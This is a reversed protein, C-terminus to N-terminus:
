DCFALGHVSSIKETTPQPLVCFALFFHLIHTPPGFLAGSETRKGLVAMSADSVTLGEAEAKRREVTLKKMEESADHVESNKEELVLVNKLFKRQMEDSAGNLLKEKAGNDGFAQEAEREHVRHSAAARQLKKEPERAFGRLLTWDGGSRHRAENGAGCVEQTRRVRM